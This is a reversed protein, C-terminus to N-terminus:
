TTSAVTPRTPPTVPGPGSGVAFHSCQHVARQKGLEVAHAAFAVQVLQALREVVLLVYVAVEKRCLLAGGEEMISHFAVLWVDDLQQQEM